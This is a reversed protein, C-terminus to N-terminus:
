GQAVNGRVRTQWLVCGVGRALPMALPLVYNKVVLRSARPRAPGLATPRPAYGTARRVIHTEGYRACRPGGAPRQTRISRHRPPFVHLFVHTLVARPCM